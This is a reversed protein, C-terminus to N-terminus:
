VSNENVAPKQAKNDTNQRRPGEKAKERNSGGEGKGKKIEGKKVSSRSSVFYTNTNGGRSNRYISLSKWGGDGNREGRSEWWSGKRNISLLANEKKFKGSGSRNGRGGGRGGVLAGIRLTSRAVREKSVGDQLSTGENDEGPGEL